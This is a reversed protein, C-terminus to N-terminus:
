HSPGGTFDQISIIIPSMKRSLLHYSLRIATHFVFSSLHNRARQPSQSNKLTCSAGQYNNQEWINKAWGQINVRNQVAQFGALSECPGHLNWFSKRQTVRKERTKQGSFELCRPRELSRNRDRWDMSLEKGSRSPNVWEARCELIQRWASSQLETQDWKNRM